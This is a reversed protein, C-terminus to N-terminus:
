GKCSAVPPSQPPQKPPTFPHLPSRSLNQHGLPRATATHALLVRRAGACPAPPQFYPVQPSAPPIGHAETQKSSHEASPVAEQMVAPALSLCGLSQLCSGGFGIVTGHGVQTSCQQRGAIPGVTFLKDRNDGRNHRIWRPLRHQPPQTPRSDRTQFSGGSGSGVEM